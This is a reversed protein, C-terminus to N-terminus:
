RRCTFSVPFTGEVQVDHLAEPVGEMVHRRGLFEKGLQMMDAVSHKGDRIFEQLQFAILSTAEAQNLQLGRALRKQALFGLNALLLKDQFALRVHGDASTRTPPRDTSGLLSCVQERPTLRM